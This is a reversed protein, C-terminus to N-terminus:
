LAIMATPTGSVDLSTSSVGGVSMASVAGTKSNVVKNGAQHVVDLQRQAGNVVMLANTEGSSIKGHKLLGQGVANAIPSANLPVQSVESWSGRSASSWGRVVEVDTNKNTTKVRAAARAHIDAATLPRKDSRSNEHM